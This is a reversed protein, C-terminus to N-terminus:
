HSNVVSTGSSSGDLGGGEQTLGIGTYTRIMPPQPWAIWGTCSRYQYQNSGPPLPDQRSYCRFKLQLSGDIKGTSTMRPDKAGLMAIAQGISLVDDEATRSRLGHSDPTINGTQYDWDFNNLIPVPYKYAVLLPDLAVRACFYDWKTWHGDAATARGVSLGERINETATSFSNWLRTQATPEVTAM